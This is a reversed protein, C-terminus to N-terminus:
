DERNISREPKKEVAEPPAAPSVSTQAPPAPLIELIEGQDGRHITEPRPGVPQWVPALVIPPSVVSPRIVAEPTDGGPLPAQAQVPLVIPVSGSQSANESRPVM